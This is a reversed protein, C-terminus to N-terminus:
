NRIVVQGRLVHNQWAKNTENRIFLENDLVSHTQPKLPIVTTKLILCQVATLSKSWSFCLTVSDGGGKSMSM